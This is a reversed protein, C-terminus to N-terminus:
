TMLIQSSESRPGPSITKRRDVDRDPTYGILEAFLLQQKKLEALVEPSPPPTREAMFRTASPDRTSYNLMLIFAWVVALGAWSIPNPWLLTSLKQNLTTLWHSAAGAEQSKAAAARRSERLIDVRWDDPIPKLPQRRLRQEFPEMEDNMM